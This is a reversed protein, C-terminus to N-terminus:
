KGYNINSKPLTLFVKSEQKAEQVVYLWGDVTYKNPEFEDCIEFDHMTVAEVTFPTGDYLKSIFTYTRNLNLQVQGKLKMLKVM